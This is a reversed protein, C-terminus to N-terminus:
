EEGWDSHSLIIANDCKVDHYLDLVGLPTKTPKPTDKKLIISGVIDFNDGVMDFPMYVEFDGHENITKALSEILKSAKM